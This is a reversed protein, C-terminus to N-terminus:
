AVAQRIRPRSSSRAVLHLRSLAAWERQRPGMPAFVSPRTLIILSKNLPKSVSSQVGGKSHNHSASASPMAATGPRERTSRLAAAAPTRHETSGVLDTFMVTLQRREAEDRLKPQPAATPQVTATAIAGIDRIARLIKRRHGLSIGLQELDRDTLEPLVDIDIDNETFRGAYESLGLSALWDTITTV